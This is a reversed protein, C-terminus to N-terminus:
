LWVEIEEESISGMKKALQKWLDKNHKSEEQLTNIIRIKDKHSLEHIYVRRSVTKQRNSSINTKVNATSKIDPHNLEDDFQSM